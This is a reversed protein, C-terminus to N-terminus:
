NAQDRDKYRRPSTGTRAKFDRSFHAQDSFGAALAVDSISGTGRTLCERAWEFRITRAYEGISVGFAARFAQCLYAPHLDHAAALDGLSPPSRFEAELQERVSNLWRKASPRRDSKLLRASALSLEILLEELSLTTLRDNAALEYEIKRALHPVLGGGFITPAVFVGAAVDRAAEASLMEIILCHAGSSGYRNSHDATSPKALVSGAACTHTEHTFSEEFSGSLVLTWSPFAHEHRAVTQDPSYSARTLRYSGVTVVRRSNGHSVKPQTM